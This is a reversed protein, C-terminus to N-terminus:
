KPLAKYNVISWKDGEKEFTWTTIWVSSQGSVSITFEAVVSSTNGSEQPAAVKYDSIPMTEHSSIYSDLSDRAKYSAPLMEYAEEWKKEQYLKYYDSVYDNLAKGSPVYVKPGTKTPAAPQNSSQDQSTPAPTTATKKKCGIFTFLLTLVTLSVFLKVSFKRVM